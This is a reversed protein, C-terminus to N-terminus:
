VRGRKKPGPKPREMKLATEPIEWFEGVPSKQRVAGPVLGADLWNLATRYNVGMEAAFQKTTMTRTKKKAMAV